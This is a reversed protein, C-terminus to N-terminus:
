PNKKPPPAFPMDPLLEAPQTAAFAKDEPNEKPAILDEWLGWATDTFSEVAEPVPIPDVSSYLHEAAQKPAAPQNKPADKTM